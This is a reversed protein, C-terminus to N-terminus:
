SRVAVHAYATTGTSQDFAWRDVQPGLINIHNRSM